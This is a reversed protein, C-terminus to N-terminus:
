NRTSKEQGCSHNVLRAGGGRADLLLDHFYGCACRRLRLIKLDSMNAEHDHNVRLYGGSVYLEVDDSWLV